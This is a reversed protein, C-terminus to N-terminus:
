EPGPQRVTLLRDVALDKLTTRDGDPWRVTLREVRAAAGLGFHARPDHASLVSGGTQVERIWSKGGAELTIRAGIADRRGRGTLARVTLWHGRRSADAPGENLLLLAPGEMDMAAIDVDGDNDLDGFAAGRGVVARQFVEGSELSVDRFRGSGGNLFLQMREPMGQEPDVQHIDQVHGNLFFLDLWGDNDADFFRTGFGVRRLTPHMIGAAQGVETFMSGPENRYLSNPEMWFNTVILDPRGDNDYDGFDVGMGGQLSGDRSYATGTALGVNEMRRRGSNHFLDGPMEDNAIYLDPWGDSDYDAAAIGWAKGHARDLGFRATAEAFTGDGRNHYFVGVEPRYVDPGCTRLVSGDASRCYQPEGPGFRVYRCIYLDLFGDRDLDTFLASTQYGRAHIGAQKTSEVFSGRGDNRYLACADYGTVFLDADGDNDYDGTACGIWFGERALGAAQTVDTFTGSGSGRYLACRPQGALFLDLWGDNDVDVFACGSGTAELITLPRKGGTGQRFRVGREEAADRFHLGTWVPAVRHVAASSGRSGTGCGSVSGLLVAALGLLGPLRCPGPNM